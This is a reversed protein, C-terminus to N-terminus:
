PALDLLRQIARDPRANNAKPFREIAAGLDEGGRQTALTVFLHTDYGDLQAEVILSRWFDTVRGKGAAAVNLMYGCAYSARHVGARVAQRMTRGVLLDACEDRARGFVVEADDMTWTGTAVLTEVAIADAAGEHIWDPVHDSAPRAAAQWLHAAEHATSQQLLKVAEPSQTEWGAGTLTIRFQGPLADGSFKLRGQVGDNEFSMFFDPETSLSRAFSLQLQELLEPVFGTFTDKLWPPAREDIVVTRPAPGLARAGFYIFAPHDFPSQWGMLAKKTEGFASVACGDIAKFSLSVDKRVGQVSPRFHGTYLLWGDAGIPQLTPYDKGAENINARVSFRASSIKSGSDSSRLRDTGDHVEWILGPTELNWNRQRFGDQTAGFNVQTLPVPFDYTVTWQGHSGQEFLIAIPADISSAQPACSAVCVTMLACLVAIQKMM